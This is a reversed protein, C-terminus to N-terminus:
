QRGEVNQDTDLVIKQSEQTEEQQVRRSVQSFCIISYDTSGVSGKELNFFIRNAASIVVDHGHHIYSATERMILLKKTSSVRLFLHFHSLIHIRALPDSYKKFSLANFQLPRPVRAEEHDSFYTLYATCLQM